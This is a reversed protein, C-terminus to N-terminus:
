QEKSISDPQSEYKRFGSVDNHEVGDADDQVKVVLSLKKGLLSATDIEEARQEGIANLLAALKWSAKETLFIKTWVHRGIQAPGLILFELNLFPTRTSATEYTADIIEASYRGQPIPTFTRTGAQGFNTRFKM